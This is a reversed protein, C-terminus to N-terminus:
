RLSESHGRPLSIVAQAPACIEGRQNVGALDVVVIGNRGEIRKDVVTGKCTLTDGPVALSKVSVRLSRLSGDPGMWDTCLQTLFAGHLHSHVLVDPYGEEAAYEKDYHIRHANWTVASYRFLQVRSPRKVLEPLEDGVKVKEFSPSSASLDRDLM